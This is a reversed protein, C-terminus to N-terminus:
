KNLLYINLTFLEGDAKASLSGNYKESILKMSKIGFGHFGIEETKSTKPLGDVLELNGEYYNSININIMDGMKEIIIDVVKKEPDSLKQVAEVANEIANGFLSYVDMTNMFNLYEGSGMCTLRIGDESCRLNNETLLVDLAENGTRIQSGYIRMTEKLSDIEEQPLNMHGLKHKLDHYKIDITDITMKSLEYQHQKESLLLNITENEYELDVLHYLAFQVTLALLCSTIAYLSVAISGREGFFHVSRTLGVCILVTAISIYNFKMNSKIYYQNKASFRGLTLLTILFLILCTINEIHFRLSDNIFIHNTNSLIYCVINSAHYSIHQVAYGAVCCSFLSPKTLQFSFFMVLMSGVVVLLIQLLQRLVSENYYDDIPLCAVVTFLISSFLIFRIPFYNRKKAPYLFILEALFLEIIFQFRYIM